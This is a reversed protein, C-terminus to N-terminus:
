VACASSRDELAKDPVIFPPFAVLFPQLQLDNEDARVAALQNTQKGEELLGESWTHHLNPSETEHSRAVRISFKGREGM